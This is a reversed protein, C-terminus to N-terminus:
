KEYIRMYALVPMVQDFSTIGSGDEMGFAGNYAFSTDDIRMKEMKKVAQSVLIKDKEEVGIMAILAYVATSDYDCGDVIEGSVSYRAKVGEHEMQTKLWGLSNEPLLDDEALHLFTVMAEAMNLDDKKYEKSKYDYWSYYLPFEESIQGNVLIDKCENYPAEFEPNDEALLKMTKLDGFCLTIRKVYEKSETDYIDSYKGDQIGYTLLKGEYNKLIEDYGSWVNNAEYIAEYIRLDDILANVSSAKGSSVKWATLGDGWLNNQIYNLIQDFLEQNKSLVAYELMAGESESLIDTGYTIDKSKGYSSHIAGQEDM